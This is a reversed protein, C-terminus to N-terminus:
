ERQKGDMDEVEFPDFNLRAEQKVPALGSVYKLHWYVGVRDPSIALRNHHISTM